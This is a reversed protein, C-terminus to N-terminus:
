CFRWRWGKGRKKWKGDEAVAPGVWGEVDVGRTMNRLWKEALSDIDESGDSFSGPIGMQTGRMSSFRPPFPPLPPAAANATATATAAGTLPATITSAVAAVASGEDISREVEKSLPSGTQRPSEMPHGVHLVTIPDSLMTRRSSAGDRPIAPPLTEYDIGGEDDEDLTETERDIGKGTEAVLLTPAPYGLYAEIEKDLEALRIPDRANSKTPRPLLSPVPPPTLRPASPKSSPPIPSPFVGRLWAIISRKVNEQRQLENELFRQLAAATSTSDHQRDPSIHLTSEAAMNTGELESPDSNSGAIRAAATTLPIRAVRISRRPDHFQDDQEEWKSVAGRFTTIPAHRHGLEFNNVNHTSLTSPRLNKNLSSTQRDMYKVYILIVSAVGATVSLVIGLYYTPNIRKRPNSTAATIILVLM